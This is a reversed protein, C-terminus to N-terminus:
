AFQEQCLARRALRPTQERYVPNASRTMLWVTWINAWNRAYEEPYDYEHGEIKVKEYLLRRILKVRDSNSEFYRVEAPTAIRGIIDLYARRIFEYDTARRSPRVKNEAWAKALLDNIKQTQSSRGSRSAGVSGEPGRPAKVKPVEKEQGFTVAAFALLGAVSVTRFALSAPM